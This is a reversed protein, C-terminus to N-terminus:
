YRPFLRGLGFDAAGAAVLSLAAVIVTWRHAAAFGLNADLLAALVLGRQGCRMLSPFLGRRWDVAYAALVGLAAVGTSLPLFFALYTLLKEPRITLLVAFWIAFGALGVLSVAVLYYSDAGQRRGNRRRRVDGLYIIRGSADVDNHQRPDPRM